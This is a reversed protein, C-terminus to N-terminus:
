HGFVETRLDYILGEGIRASYWRQAISLLADAVALAAVASCIALVVGTKKPIIGDDILSRLLLPVTVTAVADLAVILLFLILHRRYPRAYSFIRRVTGPKLRQNAVDRDRAFSRMSHWNAYTM